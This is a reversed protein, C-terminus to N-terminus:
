MNSDCGDLFKEFEFSFTGETDQHPMDELLWSEIEAATLSCTGTSQPNPENVSEPQCIQFQEGNGGLAQAPIPQQLSQTLDNSWGCTADATVPYTPPSSTSNIYPTPRACPLVSQRSIPDNHVYVPNWNNHLPNWSHQSTRQSSTLGVRKFARASAVSHPM